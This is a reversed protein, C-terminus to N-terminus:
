ASSNGPRSTQALLERVRGAWQSHPYKQLFEALLLRADEPATPLLLEGLKLRAIEDEPADPTERLVARLLAAGTAPDSSEAAAAGLRLRERPTLPLPLGLARADACCRAAHSLDGRRHFLHVALLMESKAEDWDDDRGQARQALARALEAHVAPEDPDRELFARYKRVAEGLLDQGRGTAARAEELLYEQRGDRLLSTLEAAVLGFVFGGIHAWYAVGGSEPAVVARAAGFLNQALWLWLAAVAPLELDRWSAGLLMGPLWFLRIQSRHYRLVFPALIASIAGSAGILPSSATVGKSVLLVTIAMHLVGAAIGGGLYLAAFATHGLADEVHPGFLWLFAMNWFLHPSLWSFNEPIAHLFLGTVFTVPRPASPVLGWTGFVNQGAHVAALAALYALMNLGILTLTVYPVRRRPRDTGVPLPLLLALITLWPSSNPSM